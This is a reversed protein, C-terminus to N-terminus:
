YVRYCGLIRKLEEHMLLVFDFLYFAFVIKTQKNTQEDEQPSPTATLAFWM